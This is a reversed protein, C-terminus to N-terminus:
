SLDALYPFSISSYIVLSFFKLLRLPGHSGEVKSQQLQNDFTYPMTM